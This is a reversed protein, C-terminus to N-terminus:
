LIPSINLHSVSGELTQVFNLSALVRTIATVRLKDFLLPGSQPIVAKHKWLSLMVPTILAEQSYLHKREDGRLALGKSDCFSWFETGERLHRQQVLRLAISGDTSLAADQKRRRALGFAESFLGIGKEKARAQQHRMRAPVSPFARDEYTPTFTLPVATLLAAAKGKWLSLM